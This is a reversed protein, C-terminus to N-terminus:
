RVCEASIIHDHFWCRIKSTPCRNWCEDPSPYAAKHSSRQEECRGPFRGTFNYYAYKWGDLHKNISEKISEQCTRSIKHLAAPWLWWIYRQCWTQLPSNYVACLEPMSWWLYCTQDLCGDPAPLWRGSHVTPWWTVRSLYVVTIGAIVVPSGKSYPAFLSSWLTFSTKPGVWVDPFIASLILWGPPM